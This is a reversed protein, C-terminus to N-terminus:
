TEAAAPQATGERRGSCRDLALLVALGGVIAAAVTGMAARPGLPEFLQGMLWPLSMGGVGSAALFWGAVQGTISLRREAHSLMAPFVSALGLGVGVSGLWLAVPSRPFALLAGVGALSAVLDAALIARPSFRTSIPIGLLRGATFAGWFASTLYAAAAPGGLGVATAYTYIWGGFGVEAGVYLGFFAAALVVWARRAPPRADRGTAPASTPSPLRALWLAAPLAAVALLRYAWAIGGVALAVQAVAIPAIFTGIGFCCHLGNMFPGVRQRHVWVLLTNGGVDVTSEAMGLILLLAALLWLRGALPVAAMMAAITVLAGAMLPHGRVRDYLRGAALSGLMYGLARATFLASIEGLRAGTQRALGPLTPGLSAGSLGIAVFALYYASTQLRARVRGAPAPAAPAASSLNM